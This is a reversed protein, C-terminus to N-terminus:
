VASRADLRSAPAIASRYGATILNMVVFYQAAETRPIM